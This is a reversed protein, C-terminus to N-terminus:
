IKLFDLPGHLLSEPLWGGVDVIVLEYEWRGSWRWGLSM